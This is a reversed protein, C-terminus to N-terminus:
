AATKRDDTGAKLQKRLQKIENMLQGIKENRVREREVIRLQADYPLMMFAPWDKRPWCLPEIGSVANIQSAVLEGLTPDALGIETHAQSIEQVATWVGGIGLDANDAVFRAVDIPSAPVPKIQNQSCWDQWM